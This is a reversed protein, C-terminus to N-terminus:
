ERLYICLYYTTFAKILSFLLILPLINKNALNVIGVIQVALECKENKHANKQLKNKKIKRINL